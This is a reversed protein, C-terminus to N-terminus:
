EPREPPLSCRDSFLPMVNCQWCEHWRLRRFHEINELMAARRKQHSESHPFGRFWSLLRDALEEDNKFTVGNINPKVLEEITPYYQAIVPLGCGFMDVVKMPLDFGSSSTHLSLGVDAAALLRPYDEPELWVTELQVTQWDCRRALNLYYDKLPGKGTVVVILRPYQEPKLSARDEYATLARLLVSFDEDETWSTSSVLLAPRDESHSVRGDAFRETFVTKDPASGSFCPLQSSLKLFLDHKAEVSIPQFRLPPRDYHVTIHDVGWSRKLDDKMARSVCLGASAMRGFVKEITKYVHVLPHRQGLTLALISYGYNHWDLILRVRFILCYLWCVPLAPVCPPNQLMLYQPRKSLLLTFWLSFAQWLVRFVFRILNPLSNLCSPVKRLPVISIKPHSLLEEQPRSGMYGVLNVDYNEQAFSLAHYAMRPSHGVDGVVVVSVCGRSTSEAPNNNGGQEVERSTKDSTPM